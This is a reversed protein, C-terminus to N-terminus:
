TQIGFTLLWFWVLRQDMTGPKTNSATMSYM